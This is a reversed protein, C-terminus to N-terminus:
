RRLFQLVIWDVSGGDCVNYLSGYSSYFSAGTALKSIMVDLLGM